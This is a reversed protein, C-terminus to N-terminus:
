LYSRSVVFSVPCFIVHILSPHIWPDFLMALPDTTVCFLSSNWAVPTGIQLSMTSKAGIKLSIPISRRTSVRLFLTLFKLLFGHQEFWRCGDVSLLELSKCWWVLSICITEATFCSFYPTSSPETLFVWSFLSKSPVFVNSYNSIVKIVNLIFQLEIRCLYKM